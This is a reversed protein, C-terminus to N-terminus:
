EDCIKKLKSIRLDDVTIKKEFLIENTLYYSFTINLYKKPYFEVAFGGTSCKVGIDYDNCVSMYSLELITYYMDSLSPPTSSNSWTWNTDEM